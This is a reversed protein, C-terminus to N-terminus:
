RQKNLKAKPNASPQSDYRQLPQLKINHKRAFYKLAQMQTLEIGEKQQKIQRIRRFIREIIKRNKYKRQKLISSCMLHYEFRAEKKKEISDFYKTLKILDAGSYKNIYKKKQKDGQSWDGVIHEKRSESSCSSPFLYGCEKKEGKLKLEKVKRWIFQTSRGSISAIELISYYRREKFIPVPTKIDNFYYHTTIEEFFKPQRGKSFLSARKEIQM